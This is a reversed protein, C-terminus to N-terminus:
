LEVRDGTKLNFLTKSVVKVGTIKEAAYAYLDLQKAYHKKLSEPTRSSVKYDAIRIGEPTFALVDIVGQVLVDDGSGRSIMEAPILAEFPLERFYEAHPLHFYDAALARAVNEERVLEAWEAPMQGSEAFVKKEERIEGESRKEFDALEMFKHYADGVTRADPEDSFLVNVYEGDDGGLLGTVSSKAPSSTDHPYRFSLNKIMIAKLAADVKGAVVEKASKEVRAAILEGEDFTKTELAALPIMKAYCSAGIVDSASVESPANGNIETLYLRSKARTLAVYLIRMEEKARELRYRKKLFECVINTEVKMASADYTKLAFGYDRDTIIERTVDSSNFRANLGAVIVVPFELGKSSHISMIRVADGGSAETVSVEDADSDLRALFEKVTIPKEARTAESILKNIRKLRNRGDRRSMYYLDVDKERVARSLIEGAGEYDALFRLREMYAFFENLKGALEGDNNERYLDAAEAFTIPSKKEGGSEEAARKEAYRRIEALEIDTFGGIPGRMVACLPVDQRACDIVRLLSVLHRIEPYVTVDRKLESTVPVDNDTLADALKRAHDGSISRLLIVVDGFEYKRKVGNEDEYESSTIERLLDSILIGEKFVEDEANGSLNAKVSYVGKKASFGGKEKEAPLLARLETVGREGNGGRMPSVSYDAGCTEATMIRSFIGNVGELVSESSRFNSTLTLATGEGASFREFKDQFINPNCGRFAYISQKVDGVMFMNDKGVRKLIEEQVRNTDQYEDAFVYDYKESVTKRVDDKDLLALAFHELDSFDVVNEERKLASYEGDFASCLFCLAEAAGNMATLKEREKERDSDGLLDYLYKAEGTLSAKLSKLRERVSIGYEDAVKLPPLKLEVFQATKSMAFIDESNYLADAYSILNDCAEESKAAGLASLDGKVASLEASIRKFYQRYHSFFAAEIIEYGSETYIAAAQEYSKQPYAESAFFKHLDLVTKKLFEDSRYRVFIELAKYLREDKEAYLREFLGDIARGRLMESQVGDAITFGADLGLEYFYNKILDNCFSHFTSIASMPVDALEAKLREATEGDTDPANIKETIARVLKEKMESAALNTFTVALVDSVKTKGELILRILRQIMVFTKGSGASASVLINGKDRMIAQKQEETYNM